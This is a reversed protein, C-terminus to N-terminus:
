KGGKFCGGAGSPCDSYGYPRQASCMERRVPKESEQAQSPKGGSAVGKGSPSLDEETAWSLRNGPNKDIWRLIRTEESDFLRGEVLRKGKRTLTASKHREGPLFGHIVMGIPHRYYDAIWKFFPIMPPPFLPEPNLLDEIEKLDYEPKEFVEELVYGTVPRNKFPVLVRSGTSVLSRLDEPVAYRYTEKVPASVAISLCYFSEPGAKKKM